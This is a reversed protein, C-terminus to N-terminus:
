STLKRVLWQPMPQGSSTFEKALTEILECDPLWLFGPCFRRYLDTKYQELDDSKGQSRLKSKTSIILARESSSLAGRAVRLQRLMVRLDDPRMVNLDLHRGAVKLSFLLRSSTLTAPREGRFEFLAQLRSTMESYDTLSSIAFDIDSYHSYLRLGVSGVLRIDTRIGCQKLRRSIESRAARIEQASIQGLAFM